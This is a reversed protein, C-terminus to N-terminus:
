VSVKVAQEKEMVLTSMEVQSFFVRTKGHGPPPPPSIMDCLFSGIILYCCQIYECQVVLSKPFVCCNYSNQVLLLVVCSGTRVTIITQNDLVYGVHEVRNPPTM